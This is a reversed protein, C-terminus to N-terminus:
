RLPVDACNGEVIVVDSRVWLTGAINYWIPGEDPQAYGDVILTQGPNLLRGIPANLNPESRLRAPSSAVSVACDGPRRIRLNGDEDAELDIDGLMLDTGWVILVDVLGTSWYRNSVRVVYSGSVPVEFSNIQADYELDGAAQGYSATAGSEDRLELVLDITGERTRAAISVVEGAEADFKHLLAVYLGVDGSIVEIDRDPVSSEGAEGGQALVAMFPLMLLLSFALLVYRRYRRM